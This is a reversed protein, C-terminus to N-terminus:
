RSSKSGAKARKLAQTAELVPLARQKTLYDDLNGGPLYELVLYTM